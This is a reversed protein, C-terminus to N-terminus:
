ARNVTWRHKGVRDELEMTNINMVKYYLDFTKPWDIPVGNVQQPEHTAVTVHIRGEDAFLDYRGLDNSMALDNMAFQSFSKDDGLGVTYLFLGSFTPIAATWRGFPLLQGPAGRVSAAVMPQQLADDARHAVWRQGALRDEFEISDRGVMTYYTGWSKLWTIDQGNQKKPEHDTVVFHIFNGTVEINGEDWAMYGALKTMQSFRDNPQLILQLSMDGYPTPIAARWAGVFPDGAAGHAGRAPNRAQAAQQMQSFVAQLPHAGEPAQPPVSAARTGGAPAMAATRSAAPPESTFFSLCASCMHRALHGQVQTCEGTRGDACSHRAGCSSM